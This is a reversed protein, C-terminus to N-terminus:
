SSYAVSRGNVAKINSWAQFLTEGDVKRGTTEDALGGSVDVVLKSDLYAAVQIGIEGREAIAFDVAEQVVKNPNGAM